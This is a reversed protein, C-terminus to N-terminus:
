RRAAARAADAHKELPRDANELLYTELTRFKQAPTAAEILRARLEAADRGWLAELPAHANHLEGTPLGLFPYAGGPKFHVGMVADQDATDIVFYESHPGCVLPGRFSRSQEPNHRDYYGITDARLNVVLEVTGTPLLREKAHDPPPEDSLWLLEVFNALPPGPRYSLLPM